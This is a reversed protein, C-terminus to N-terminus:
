PYIIKLMPEYFCRCGFQHSCGEIPLQPAKDKEYTGEHPKCTPCCDGAVILRVNIVRPNKQFNELAEMAATKTSQM